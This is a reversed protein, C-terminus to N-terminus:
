TPLGTPAEPDTESYITIAYRMEEDIYLGLTRAAEAYEPLTVALEGASAAATLHDLVVLRLLSLERVVDRALYGQRYRTYVHVRAERGTVVSPPAGTELAEAMEEIVVPIADRLEGPTLAADSVIRQDQRVAHEWLGTLYDRHERLAHAFREHPM